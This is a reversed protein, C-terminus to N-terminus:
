NLAEYEEKTIQIFCNNIADKLLKFEEQSEEPIEEEKTGIAALFKVWLNGEPSEFTAVIDYIAGHENVGVQRYNFNTNKSKLLSFGLISKEQFIQQLLQYTDEGVIDKSGTLTLIRGISLGSLKENNTKFSIINLYYIVSSM